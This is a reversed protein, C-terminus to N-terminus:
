LQITSLGGTPRLVLMSSHVEGKICELNNTDILDIIYITIVKPLSDTLRDTLYCNDITDPRM